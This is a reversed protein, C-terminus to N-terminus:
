SGKQAAYRSLVEQNIKIEGGAELEQRKRSLYDQIYAQAEKQAQDDAFSAKETKFKEMDAPKKELLYALACGDRVEFPGSIQDVAGDYIQRTLKKDKGIIPLADEVGIEQSDQVQYQLKKAEEELSKADKARTKLDFAAKKALSMQRERKLTDKITSKVEDFAAPHPAKVDVVCYRISSIPMEYLASWEGTKAQFVQELLGPDSMFPAQPKEKELNETTSVQLKYKDAVALIEKESSAKKFDATAADFLEKVKTEYTKEGFLMMNKVQNKVQALPKEGFKEKHSDYYAQVENDPIDFGARISPASIMVYKVNRREPIALTAKEKEYVAMADADSVEGADKAFNSSRLFVVKAKFKSNENKYRTEIDADSFVFGSAIFSMVKRRTLDAKWLSEFDQATVGRMKLMMDYQTKPDQFKYAKIITDAVETEGVELGYDDALYSLILSDVLNSTINKPADKMFQEVYEEGLMSRIKERQFQLGLSLAAPPLTRSGVKVIYEPGLGKGSSGQRGGGYFAFIWIIFSLIVLWLMYKLIASSRMFKLVNM